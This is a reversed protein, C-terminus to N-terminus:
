MKNYKFVTPNSMSKLASSAFERHYLVCVVIISSLMLAWGNFFWALAAVGFYYARLGLNFDKGASIILKAGNQAYEECHENRETSLPAAGVFLCVYNYQRMSWSHKFFAYVFIVLLLSVKADWLMPTSPIAYPINTLVTSAEERYKLLTFIALVIFITTSAFFAISRSLNGILTSDMMRNERKLMQRMWNIRYESTVGVLSSRHKSATAAFITYGFWCVFFFLPAIIDLTSFEKM